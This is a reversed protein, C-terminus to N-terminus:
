TNLKHILTRFHFRQINYGGASITEIRAKGTNGIIVGEIMGTRGIHLGSCDVINGVVATIRYILDALLAQKEEEITKCLYDFRETSNIINLMRDLTTDVFDNLQKNLSHYDLGQKALETEMIGSPQLNVLDGYYYEKHSAKRYREYKSFSEIITIRANREKEKLESRFKLFMEFRRIYWKITRAEWNDAFKNLIAPTNVEIFNQRAIENDLKKQWGLTIRSLEKLKSDTTKFYSQAMSYTFDNDNSPFAEYNRRAKELTTARKNLTARCKDVKLQAADLKNQIESITM